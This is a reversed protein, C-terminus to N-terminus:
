LEIGEPVAIFPLHISQLHSWLVIDSLTPCIAGRGGPTLLSMFFMAKLEEAGTTNEEAACLM